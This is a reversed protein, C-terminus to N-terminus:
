PINIGTSALPDRGDWTGESRYPQFRAFLEESYWRQERTRRVVDVHLPSAAFAQADAASRWLSFTGLRGVPAEGVGVVALLGDSRHLERDVPNGAARFARWSALRVDARTIMAVAQDDGIDRAPEIEDLLSRGRWSGHGGGARLRVCWHEVPASWPPDALFADLADANRWTAFLATRALEAGPGTSGGAGTGLLRWFAIGPTRALRRRGLGLHRLAAWSSSHRVLHFTAISPALETMM